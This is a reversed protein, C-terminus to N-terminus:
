GSMWFINSRLNDPLLSAFISQLYMVANTSDHWVRILTYIVDLTIFLQCYQSAKDLSLQWYGRLLDFIAFYKSNSLKVFEHEINRMPFQHNVAFRNIPRLVVTFRFMVPGTKRVLLPASAWAASSNLFDIGAKM